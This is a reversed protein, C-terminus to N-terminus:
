LLRWRSLWSASAHGPSPEPHSLLSVLERYLNQRPSQLSLRRKRLNSLANRLSPSERPRPDNVYDDNCHWRHQLRIGEVLLFVRLWDEVTQALEDPQPQAFQHPALRFKLSREYNELPFPLEMHQLLALRQQSSAQYREHVLLLADGLAQRAKYLNRRVFDQDPPDEFGRQVRSAWLLGAGRNLLLRSAEVRPPKLHQLGPASQSLVNSPGCLVRHSSVLDFFMQSPPWRAVESPTYYRSFDVDIHLRVHYDKSLGQLSPARRSHVLVFLDLDNYPREQGDVIWVGGEGRGYGGGLILAWLSRGMLASCERALTQIQEGLRRNFEESGEPAWIM